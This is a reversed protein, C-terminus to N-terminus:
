LNRSLSSSPKTSVWLLNSDHRRDNQCDLTKRRYVSLWDHLGSWQPIVTEDIIDFNKDINSHFDADATRGGDGEGIYFVIDGEYRLLAENAMPRNYPPWCLFLACDQHKRVASVGQKKVLSWQKLFGYENNYKPRLDYAHVTVGAQRLMWAWYGTGAGIEVIKTSYKKITTVAKCNPIAFGYNAILAFRKTYAPFNFPQQLKNGTYIGEDNLEPHLSKFIKLYPNKM